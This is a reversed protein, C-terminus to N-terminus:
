RVRRSWLFIKGGNYIFLGAHDDRIMIASFVVDNIETQFGANEELAVPIFLSSRLKEQKSL